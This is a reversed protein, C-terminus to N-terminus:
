IVEKEEDVVEVKEDPTTGVQYQDANNANIWNLSLFRVGELEPLPMLGFVARKENEYMAGTPSLLEVLKIKQDVSMFILEGPLFEIRNGLVRERDSFLKKTFAESISKVLPELTKQFFAEYQAKTYDGTLICLPVGYNRLIRSDVFNLVSPDVIQSKHELPTFDAKLDLPLFGSENNILKRELELLARETKGDDMMTNYKVVGNVAYSAKMAKAVGRLLDDDLQVTQQLARHNPQGQEDGGMFQSVSYRYKLHIVDSYAITTKYGNMFWFECFLRGGADEIFNVETPQIPYLAEYTRVQEGSAPNTYTRYVPVLFANYNLLLLWMTKELLESTTMIPNPDNLIKQRDSSPIPVPDGTTERRVHMPNLKKMEDVICALAQQVVVSHFADTGYQPYDPWWGNLTMAAKTNNPKRKFLKDLWSM